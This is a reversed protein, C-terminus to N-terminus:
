ENQPHHSHRADDAVIRISLIRKRTTATTTASVGDMVIPRSQTAVIETAIRTQQLSQLNHVWQLPQIDSAMSVCLFFHIWYNALSSGLPLPLLKYIFSSLSRQQPQHTHQTYANIHIFRFPPRNMTKM